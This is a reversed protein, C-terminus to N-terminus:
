THGSGMREGKGGGRTVGLRHNTQEPCKMYIFDYYMAKPTQMKESLM